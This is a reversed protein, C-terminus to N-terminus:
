NRSGGVEIDLPDRPEENAKKLKFMDQIQCRRVGVSNKVLIKDHRTLTAGNAEVGIARANKTEACRSAFTILFKKRPSTSIIVAQDNVYLWGQAKFNAIRLTKKREGYGMGLLQDDLSVKEKPEEEAVVGVSLM